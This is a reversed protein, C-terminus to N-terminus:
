EGEYMIMKSEYDSIDDWLLWEPKDEDSFSNWIVKMTEIQEKENSAWLHNKNRNGNGLYYSCDMKMRSLLQYKFTDETQLIEKLNM